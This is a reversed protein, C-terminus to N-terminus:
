SGVNNAASLIMKPQFNFICFVQTPVIGSSVVSFLKKSTSTAIAAKRSKTSMTIFLCSVGVDSEECLSSNAFLCCACVKGAVADLGGNCCWVKAGVATPGNSALCGDDEVCNAIIEMPGLAFMGIVNVHLLVPDHEM